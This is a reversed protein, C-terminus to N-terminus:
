QRAMEAKGRGTGSFEKASSARKKKRIRKACTKTRMHSPVYAMRQLSSKSKATGIAWDGIAMGLFKCPLNETAKIDHRNGKTIRFAMPKGPGDMALHFKFSFVRSTSSYAWGASESSLCDRRGM